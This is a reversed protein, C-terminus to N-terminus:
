KLACDPCASRRRHGGSLAATAVRAVVGGVAVPAQLSRSITGRGPRGPASLSALGHQSVPPAGHSLLFAPAPSRHAAPALYHVGGGAARALLAQLGAIFVLEVAVAARRKWSFEAPHPVLGGLSSGFLAAATQKLIYPVFHLFVLPNWRTPAQAHPYFLATYVTTITRAEPRLFRRDPDRATNAHRHHSHNHVVAWVTPSIFNAGWCVLELAMRGPGPGLVAGHSLEHAFLAMCFLSHGAVVAIPVLVWGDCNRALMVLGAFILLQALAYLVRRPNRRFAERPLLPALERPYDAAPATM